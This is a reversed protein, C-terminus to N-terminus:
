GEPGGVLSRGAGSEQGGSTALADRPPKAGANRQRSALSCISVISQQNQEAPQAGVFRSRLRGGIAEDCGGYGAITSAVMLAGSSAVWM